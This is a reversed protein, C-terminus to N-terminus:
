YPELGEADRDDRVLGREHLMSRLLALTAHLEVLDPAELFHRAAYRQVDGITDRCHIYAAIKESGNFLNSDIITATTQLCGTAMRELENGPIAPLRGEIIKM